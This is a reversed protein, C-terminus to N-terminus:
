FIFFTELATLFSFVNEGLGLTSVQVKTSLTLGNRGNNHLNVDEM